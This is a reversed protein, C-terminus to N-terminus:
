FRQKKTTKTLKILKKTLNKMLNKMLKMISIEDGQRINVIKIRKINTRYLVIGGSKKFAM